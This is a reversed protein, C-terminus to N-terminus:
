KRNSDRGEDQPGPPREVTRPPMTSTETQPNPGAAPTGDKDFHWEGITPRKPPTGLKARNDAQVGVTDWVARNGGHHPSMKGVNVSANYDESMAGQEQSVGRRRAELTKSAIDATEDIRAALDDGVAQGPTVRQQFQRDRIANDNTAAQIRVTDANRSADTQDFDERLTSSPWGLLQQPPLSPALPSDGPVFQSGVEGGKAYAYAIESVARQLKVWRRCKARRKSPSGADNNAKRPTPEL